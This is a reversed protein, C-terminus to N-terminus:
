APPSLVGARPTSDWAAFNATTNDTVDFLGNDTYLWRYDPGGPPAPAGTGQGRGARRRL